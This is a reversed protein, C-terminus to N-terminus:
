QTGHELLLILGADKECADRGSKKRTSQDVREQQGCCSSAIEEKATADHDGESESGDWQHHCRTRGRAGDGDFPARSQESQGTPTNDHHSGEREITSPHKKEDIIRAGAWKATLTLDHHASM